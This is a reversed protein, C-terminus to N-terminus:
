RAAPAPSTPSTTGGCGTQNEELWDPWPTRPVPERPPKGPLVLGEAALVRRLTSASVHVEDLRSGRHALKRHSRDTQGWSEFLEVVAAREAELTGHVPTGGPPEDDLRGVARREVWRAWRTHDLGLLGAASRASWGRDVAHDVLDLLGAKVCADVRM